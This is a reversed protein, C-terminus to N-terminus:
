RERRILSNYDGFQPIPEWNSAMDIGQRSERTEQGNSEIAQHMIGDPTMEYTEMYVADAYGGRETSNGYSYTTAAELFLSGNILTFVYALTDRGYEDMFTVAAYGTELRLGVRLAPLSSGQPYGIANYLQGSGHRARAAGPALPGMPSEKLSNWKECYTWIM